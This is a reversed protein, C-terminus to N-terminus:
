KLNDKIYTAKLEEMLWHKPLTATMNHNSEYRNRGMWGGIFGGGAGVLFIFFFALCNLSRRLRRARREALAARTAEGAEAENIHEPPSTRVGQTADAAPSTRTSTNSRPSSDSQQQGSGQPPSLSSSQSATGTVDDGAPSQIPSNTPAALPGVTAKETQPNPPSSHPSMYASDSDPSAKQDEPKPPSKSSARPSPSKVGGASEPNGPSSKASGPKKEGGDILPTNETAEAM